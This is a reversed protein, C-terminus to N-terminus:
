GFPSFSLGAKKDLAIVAAKKLGTFVALGSPEKCNQQGISIERLLEPIGTPEIVASDLQMHILRSIVPFDPSISVWNGKTWEPTLREETEKTVGLADWFAKLGNQPLLACPDSADRESQCKWLRVSISSEKRAETGKGTLRNYASFWLDRVIVKLISTM